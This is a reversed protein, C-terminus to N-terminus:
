FWLGFEADVVDGEKEREKLLKAQRESEKMEEKEAIKQMEERREKEVILSDRHIVKFRLEEEEEASLGPISTTSSKKKDIIPAALSLGAISLLAISLFKM